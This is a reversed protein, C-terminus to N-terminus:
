WWEIIVDLGDKNAMSEGYYELDLFSNENLPMSIKGGAFDESNLIIKEQDICDRLKKIAGDLSENEIEIRRSLIEEYDFIYKM